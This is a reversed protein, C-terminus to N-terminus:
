RSPENMLLSKITEGDITFTESRQTRVAWPAGWLALLTSGPYDRYRYALLTACIDSASTSDYDSLRHSLSNSSKDDYLSITGFASVGIFIAPTAEGGEFHDISELKSASIWRSGFSPGDFRPSGPEGNGCLESEVGVGALWYDGEFMTPDSVRLLVRVFSPYAERYFTSFSGDAQKDVGLYPLPAGLEADNARWLSIEVVEVRPPAGVCASTTVFLLTASIWSRVAPSM